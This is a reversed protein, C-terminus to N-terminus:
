AHYGLWVEGDKVKKKEVCCCGFSTGEELFPIYDGEEKLVESPIFALWDADSSDFYNKYKEPASDFRWIKIPKKSV